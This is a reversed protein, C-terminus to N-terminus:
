KDASRNQLANLEGETLVFERIFRNAFEHSILSREVTNCHSVRKLPKVVRPEFIFNNQPKYNIFYFMTPKVFYDGLERRNHIILDPNKAWYRVLYHQTSYPNEIILRLNKRLCVLVLKTILKYNHDLEDHKVIDNELKQEMTWNKYSSSTGKFCMIIQDEFRICPFFAFLMDESTFKDFISERERSYANEIEQYLDIQYDTENFDNLIDYDYAQYGMKKFENKFTGSQEFLCHVNRIM